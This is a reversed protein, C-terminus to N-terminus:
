GGAIVAKGKWMAETVVLGFGESLSKQIIIDSGSQVANVVIDNDAPLNNPDSILFVDRDDGACEKSKNM